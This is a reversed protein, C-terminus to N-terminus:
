QIRQGNALIHGQENIEITSTLEDEGAGPRAFLGMMMRAGMAQEQPLLGMQVLKDMLGNGGVLSVDVGGTPKPFGGFSELDNNDFTFDGTGTLKAGAASILLNRLTLATLEAPMAEGAEVSAMQEPDFFDFLMQAKGVLDFSVTAPDRPLVNGADIMSWLDDSTVFDGLTLGFAFDSPEESKSVPIMLNFALEGLGAVIPLPIDAGNLNFNVGQSAGTYALVDKDMKVGIEASQAGSSGNTVNGGDVFSFETKSGTYSFSGDVAFGNNMSVAMNKPDFESPLFSDGAFSLTDMSGNFKVSADGSPDQFDVTYQTAGLTMNQAIKRIAGPEMTSQGNLDSSTLNVIIAGDPMAEGSVTLQTLAIGIQDASYDYIVKSLDGSARMDMNQMTYELAGTVAEGDPGEATFTMPMVEPFVM